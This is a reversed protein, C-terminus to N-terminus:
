ARSPFATPATVYALPVGLLTATLAVATASLQTSGIARLCKPKDFLRAWGSLGDGPM